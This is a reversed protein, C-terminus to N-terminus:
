AQMGISYLGIKHTAEVFRKKITKRQKDKDSGASISRLLVATSLTLNVIFDTAKRKLFKIAKQSINNDSYNKARM